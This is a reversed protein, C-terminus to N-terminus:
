IWMPAWCPPTVHGLVSVRVQLVCGQGTSQAISCHLEQLAQELVHPPPVCVRVRPAFCGCCPPLAHSSLAAARFHLVRGHGLSQTIPPQVSNLVQVFFHSVPMWDRERVIRDGGRLPPLSHGCALSAIVHLECEHRTSQLIPSQPDHPLQSLDVWTAHSRM